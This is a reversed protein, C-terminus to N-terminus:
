VVNGPNELHRYKCGSPGHSTRLDAELFNGTKITVIIEEIVELLKEKLEELEAPDGIFEGSDGLSQLYWYSLSKVKEGFQEGAAWQYILLQQKDVPSLKIKPEGTKYDIIDITGDANTDGRDIKGTFKYQGLKLKFSKELFKPLKPNQSFKDYFNELYVIGRKRYDAKQIKDAFWYDM